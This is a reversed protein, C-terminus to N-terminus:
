GHAASAAVVTAGVSPPQTTPSLLRVFDLVEAAPMAAAFLYGQAYACGLRRLEALQEPREIGEAVVPVGVVHGLRLLAELFDVQRQDTDIRDVFSRDIKVVDLEVSHLQALSSYGVGFDDLAIRVGLARLEDIAARAAELDGFLATETIEITLQSPELRHQALTAAVTAIMSPAVIQQPPVNVAVSLRQHGLASSWTALQRCVEQLVYETLEVIVGTREAAPIFVDPPVNEGHRTWRALAELGYLEGTDVAVVPQYAVRLTHTAMAETLEHALRRDTLELLFMGERYIEVGDKGARKAAYMATDARTVLQDASAGEDDRVCVVGISATVNVAGASLVFQERLSEGVARAVVLPDDTDELLVAFEDGGLRAVTDGARLAASLRNAAACLLEDGTTHGLTDNVIKFDDLDLFMVALRGTGRNRMALGHELRDRFLERNALGTLSDHFAQHHLQGEREALDRALEGNRRLTAYQRGFLMAVIVWAAVQQGSSLPNGIASMVVSAVCAVAPPAYPLLTARVTAPQNRRADIVVPGEPVLPAVALLAFGALWGVDVAGGQYNSTAQLAAFLADSASLAVLAIACVILGRRQAHVRMLTLVTLVLVAVDSIPYTLSIVIAFTDVGDSHGVYDFVTQWLVLLLSATAIVSDLLRSRRSAGDGGTPFAVLATCAGVPFGLFGIDAVSPFPNTGRSVDYWCWVAEGLAWSACGAAVAAWALRTRGSARLARRGTSLAAVAALIGQAFDDVYHRFTGSGIPLVVVAAVVVVVGLFCLAATPVTRRGPWAINM